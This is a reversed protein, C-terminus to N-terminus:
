ISEGCDDAAFSAVEYIPTEGAQMRAADVENKLEIMRLERDVALKNFAELDRRRDEADDVAQRLRAQSVKDETVDRLCITYFPNGDLSAQKAFVEVTISENGPRTISVHTRRNAEGSLYRDVGHKAHSHWADDTSNLVADLSKGLADSRPFVLLEEAARNYESISGLTDVGIVAEGLTELIASKQAQNAQLALEVQGRGSSERALQDERDQIIVLSRRRLRVMLFIFISLSGLAAFAGMQWLEWFQARTRAIAADLPLIVELVGRVDGVQWDRKPSDAHSNHCGICAPRMIDARAYRISPRGQYDEFRVYPMAPKNRLFQLADREFDDRPGGSNSRWPFPYDSYLRTSGGSAEESLRNGLLISLTAPLPIAGSKEHYDHTVAIGHDKVRAVVESTYLTRFEELAKAYQRASEEANTRVLDEELSVLQWILLGLGLAFVLAVMWTSRDISGLSVATGSAQEKSVM